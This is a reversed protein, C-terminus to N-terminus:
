GRATLPELVTTRSHRFVTSTRFSVVDRRASLRDILFAHLQDISPVGVHLLFDDGGALVFTSMVEPLRSVDDQFADIAERRLPRVSVAVLAQVHRGLVELSVEAHYGRLAGRRQLRRTRELCTSPAVSLRAALDKNSLRADEQLERLIVADLEDVDV